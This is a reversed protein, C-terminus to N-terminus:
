GVDEGHCRITVKITGLCDAFPSHLPGKALTFLTVTVKIHV